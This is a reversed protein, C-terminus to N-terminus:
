PLEYGAQELSGAGRWGWLLVVDEDAVPVLVIRSGSLLPVRRVRTDLRFATDSVQSACVRM